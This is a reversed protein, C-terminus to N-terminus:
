SGMGLLMLSQRPTAPPPGGFTRGIDSWRKSYGGYLPVGDPVISSENSENVYVQVRGGSEQSPSDEILDWWALLDSPRIESPHCGSYLASIDSADLATLWIAPTQVMGQFFNAPASGGTRGINIETIDSATPHAQAQTDTTEAGNVWVSRSTSTKFVAAVHAWKKALLIGTATNVTTSGAGDAVVV